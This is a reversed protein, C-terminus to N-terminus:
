TSPRFSRNFAIFACVCAASYRVLRAETAPGRAFAIWCAALAAVELISSATALTSHGRIALADHSITVAPHVFTM